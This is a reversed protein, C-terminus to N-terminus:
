RALLERRVRDEVENIQSSLAKAKLRRFNPLGAQREAMWEKAFKGSCIEELIERMKAKLDENPFRARRTMSGFQSTQSHLDMQKILGIEAAAQMVIAFEGSMYLELLVAEPPYGAELEVSIAAGLAAGFAPGFAQESFLDLEAEQKMTLELVGARTSGIGKALALVIDKASGSADQEVGIFSPFGKGEQYLQRVGRGIMRPAVMVVDIFPLPNILGFGINYGSAFDLVSNHRLQTKIDREYVEPMIEDPILLMVIQAASVAESISFVKFNDKLAKEWSSDKITGIIVRLGSDRLNLAQAQGQNGYGIVAIVKNELISLDADTDHYINVM